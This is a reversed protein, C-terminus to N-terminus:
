EYKTSKVEFTIKGGSYNSRKKKGKEKRFGKGRTNILDM